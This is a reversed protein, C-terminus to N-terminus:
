VREGEVEHHSHSEAAKVEVVVNEFLIRQWLGFLYVTFTHGGQSGTQENWMSQVHAQIQGACQLSRRSTGGPLGIKPRVRERAFRRLSAGDKSATNAAHSQGPGVPSRSIRVAAIGELQM